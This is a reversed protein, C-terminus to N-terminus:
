LYRDIPHRRQGCSVLPFNSATSVRCQTLLLSVMLTAEIWGPVAAQAAVHAESTLPELARNNLAFITINSAATLTAVLDPYNGLLTNLSSLETTSDLLEALSPLSQASIFSAAAAALFFSKLQM